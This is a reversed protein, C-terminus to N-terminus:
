YIFNIIFCFKNYYSIWVTRSSSNNFITYGKKVGQKSLEIPLGSSIVEHSIPIISDKLLSTWTDMSMSVLNKYCNNNIITYGNSCKTAICPGWQHANDDYLQISDAVNGSNNCKRTTNKVCINDDLTYGKKCKNIKCEGWDQAVEDWVQESKEVNGYNVKCPKKM